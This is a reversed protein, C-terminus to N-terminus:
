QDMRLDYIGKRNVDFITRLLTEGGYANNGYFHDYEPSIVVIDGKRIFGISHDLMYILGMGAHIGTNIPNM